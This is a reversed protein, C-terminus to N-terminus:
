IGHNIRILQIIRILRYDPCIFCFFGYSILMGSSFLYLIDALLQLSGQVNRAQNWDGWSAEVVDPLGDRATGQEEQTGHV